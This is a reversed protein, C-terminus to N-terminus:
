IKERTGQVYPICNCSKIAKSVALETIETM